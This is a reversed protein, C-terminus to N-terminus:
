FRKLFEEPRQPLRIADARKLKAKPNNQIRKLRLQKPTLGGKTVSTKAASSPAPLKVKPGLPTAEAVELFLLLVGVVALFRMVKLFQM